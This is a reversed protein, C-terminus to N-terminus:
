DYQSQNLAKWCKVHYRRRRLRKLRVMEETIRLPNYNRLVYVVTVQPILLDVDRIEIDDHIELSGNRSAGQDISYSSNAYTNNIIREVYGNGQIIGCHTCHNAYVEKGQTKNMGKKLFAFRDSLIMSSAESPMRVRDNERYPDVTYIVPTQKGCKFCDQKAEVVWDVQIIPLNYNRRMKMMVMMKLTASYNVVGKLVMQKVSDHQSAMRVFWEETQVYFNGQIADCSTCWNEWVGRKNRYFDFKEGIKRNIKESVDAASFEYKSDVIIVEQLQIQVNEADILGPIYM